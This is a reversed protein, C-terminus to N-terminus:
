TISKIDKIKIIGEFVQKAYPAAVTSGYYQGVPEDIIVLALYKPNSAPFYGVFSSVYKGVAIVGNQYKQATGTKGAVQYGEIYAQKGSGESVVKELMENLIASAKNSIVRNTLKPQIKEAIIGDETYIESVLYPTYYYGGNIAACTASALQLGTVAITQGFAIRALDVNQVASVPLVM